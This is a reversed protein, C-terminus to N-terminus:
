MYKWEDPGFVAAATSLLLQRANEKATKMRPTDLSFDEGQLISSTHAIVLTSSTKLRSTMLVVFHNIFARAFCPYFM